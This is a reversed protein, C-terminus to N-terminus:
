VAAGRAIVLPLAPQFPESLRDQKSQNDFRPLLQLNTLAWCRHFDLDDPGSFNHAVVPIKHDVHLEGSLFDAWSYGAPMTTDLHARLEDVTYPLIKQWSKGGKGNGRRSLASRIMCAVRGRLAVAVIERRRRSEYQRRHARVKEPNDKRRARERERAKKREGAPDKEWRAAQRKNAEAILRDKNELYWRRQREKIKKSNKIRYVADYERQYEVSSAM